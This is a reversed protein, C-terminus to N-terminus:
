LGDGPRCGVGPIKMTAPSGGGALTAGAAAGTYYAFMHFPGNLFKDPAVACFDRLAAQKLLETHLAAVGNSPTGASAPSIRWAYTDNGPNM